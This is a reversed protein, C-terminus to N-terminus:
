KVLLQGRIEGGPNAATHVNVYYSGALLDAIEVSTLPTTNDKSTWKLTGSNGTLLIPKVVAGAVGKAGKHVHAATAAGTLGTFTVELALELGDASLTATASGSGTSTTPPTEEAPTLTAAFLKTTGCGDTCSDAVVTDKATTTATKTDECALLSLCLISCLASTTSMRTM